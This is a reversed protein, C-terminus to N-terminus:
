YCPDELRFFSARHAFLPRLVGLFRGFACFLRLASGAGLPGFFVISPHLLLVLLPGYLMWLLWGLPGVFGKAGLSGFASALRLQRNGRGSLTVGLRHLCVTVLTTYALM